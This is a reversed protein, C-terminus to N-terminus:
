GFPYNILATITDRLVHGISAYVAVREGQATQGKDLILLRSATVTQVGPPAIDRVSWDSGGGNEIRVEVRGPGQVRFRQAGDGSVRARTEGFPTAIILDAPERTHYNVAATIDDGDSAIAPLDLEAYLPKDAQVDATLEQYDVGRFVYARVRWAGIQDGLKVTRAAQGELYFLENYALEPFEMRAPTEVLTPAETAAAAVALGAGTMAMLARAPFGGGPMAAAPMPVAMSARIVAFDQPPAWPMNRADPVPGASLNHTADRASEYIRKALKPAPSEHELRADYVLLWCFAARAEAAFPPLDVHVDITDGPRASQPASLAAEFAIPKIVIGWGEFPKDRTFAGLTFLTYPAETEFEIADGRKLESRDIVASTGGRPSFLVVQAQPLDSAAKLRGSEARVRELMLPTLSVEGAGVYLGRVPEADEWPLLGMHVVPGLTNIPIHEREMAGTGPFAVLATNGDPTTVQVHFPGGHNSIDFKGEAAGDRAQVKQTAIVREGCVGCQLGFEVDGSYPASLLLLKLRFSLQREAYVRKELRAILPSLSFEAVSFDCGAQAGEPLTAVLTYEGEKADPYTHLTLGDRNLMAKAEYVKQGALRIEISAERNAADPAVVFVSVDSGPKYIKRDTVVANLKLSPSPLRPQDPLPFARREAFPQRGPRRLSAEPAEPQGSEDDGFRIAHRHRSLIAAARYTQIAGDVMLAMPQAEDAQVFIFQRGVYVRDRFFATDHQCNACKEADASNAHHCHPCFM